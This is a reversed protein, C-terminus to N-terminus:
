EATASAPVHRSVTEDLTERLARIEAILRELDEREIHLVEARGTTTVTANRLKGRRLANEGIIEGAGVVAIRENGVYVGAEGSLLIYCADSPTQERILPWPGSTSTRHAAEVLKKLDSDSFKAFTPFERLRRVSEQQEQRLAEASEREYKRNDM